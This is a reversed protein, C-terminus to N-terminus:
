EYIIRGERNITKYIYGIDNNLQYYKDYDIAILDVPISIKNNFFEKYLNNTLERENTLGKKLILIDIDSNNKNDGRAYSGFLIIKDPEANTVITNVIQEIFPVKRDKNLTRTNNVIQQNM